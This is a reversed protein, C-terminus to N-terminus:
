FTTSGLTIHIPNGSNMATYIMGFVIVILLGIAFPQLSPSANAVLAAGLLVVIFIVPAPGTVGNGPGVPGAPGVAGGPGTQNAM